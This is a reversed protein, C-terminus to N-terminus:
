RPERACRDASRRLGAITDRAMSVYRRPTVAFYPTHPRASRVKQGYSLQLQRITSFIYTAAPMVRLLAARCKSAAYRMVWADRIYLCEYIAAILQRWYLMIRGACKRRSQRHMPASLSFADTFLAFAAAFHRLISRSAAALAATIRRFSYIILAHQQFDIM